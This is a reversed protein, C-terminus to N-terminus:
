LQVTSKLQDLAAQSNSSLIIQFENGDQNTIVLMKYFGQDGSRDTAQVAISQVDSLCILTM